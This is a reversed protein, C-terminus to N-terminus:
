ACLRFSLTPRFVDRGKGVFTGNRSEYLIFTHYSCCQRIFCIYERESQKYINLLPDIVREKSEFKDRSFTKCNLKEIYSTSRKM